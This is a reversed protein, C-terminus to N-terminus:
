SSSSKIGHVGKLHVRLASRFRFSKTCQTCPFPKDGTHIRQHADLDHKRNFTKRCVNCAHPRDGTHTKKHGILNSQNRFAKGCVDCAFPREDTHTRLHQELLSRILFAKGCRECQHPKDDAHLRLHATLTAKVPYSKSCLPCKFPREGTHKLVHDNLKSQSSFVSPCLECSVLTKKKFLSDDELLLEVETILDGKSSDNVKGLLIEGTKHNQRPKKIPPPHCTVSNHDSSCYMNKDVVPMEELLLDTASTESLDLEIPDKLRQQEDHKQAEEDTKSIEELIIATNEDTSIQFEYVLQQFVEFEKESLSTKGTYLFRVLNQIDKGSFDPLIISAGHFPDWAEILVLKLYPSVIALLSSHTKVIMNDKCMLEVDCYNLISSDYVDQLENVIFEGPDEYRLLVEELHSDMSHLKFVIEFRLSNLFERTHGFPFNLM